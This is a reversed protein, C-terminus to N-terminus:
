SGAAIPLRSSADLRITNWSAPLFPMILNFNYIGDLEIFDIDAITTFNVTVEVHDSSAYLSNMNEFVYAEIEEASADPHVMAYRTANELAYQFANWTFLMRGGEFIGMLLAIFAGAVLAFEVATAGKEDRRYRRFLARM